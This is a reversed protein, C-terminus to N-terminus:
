LNTTKEITYKMLCETAFRYIEKAYTLSNQADDKDPLGEPLSGPLADPYRTPVYFKNLWRIKEEFELIKEEKQKLRKAIAELDHTKPISDFYFLYFAKLLKEVTQQSHFCVINHLDGALSLEAAKLDEKAFMLWNRIYKEKAQM